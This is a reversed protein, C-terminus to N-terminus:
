YFPQAAPASLVFTHITYLDAHIHWARRGIHGEEVLGDYLLAELAEQVDPADPPAQGLPAAEAATM